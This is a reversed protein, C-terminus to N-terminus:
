CSQKTFFNLVRIKFSMKVEESMESHNVFGGWDHLVGMIEGRYLCRKSLETAEGEFFPRSGNIIDFIELFTKKGEAPINDYIKGVIENFRKSEVLENSENEVAM